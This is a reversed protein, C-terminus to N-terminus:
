GEWLDQIATALAWEGRKDEKLLCLSGAHTVHEIFM